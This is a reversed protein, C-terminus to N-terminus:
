TIVVTVSLSLITLCHKRKGVQKKKEEPDFGTSFCIPLLM